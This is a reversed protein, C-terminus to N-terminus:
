YKELLWGQRAHTRPAHPRRHRGPIHPSDRHYSVQVSETQDVVAMALHLLDPSYAAATPWSQGVIQHALEQGPFSHAQRHHVSRPLLRVNGPLSLSYLLSVYAQLM